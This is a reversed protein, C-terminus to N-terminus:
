RSANSAVEGTEVPSASLVDDGCPSPFVPATTRMLPTFSSKLVVDGCPSPFEDAFDEPWYAALVFKLVVDGYPSPFLECDFRIGQKTFWKM